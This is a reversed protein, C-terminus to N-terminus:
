ENRGSRSFTVRGRGSLRERRWFSVVAFRRSSRTFGRQCDECALFVGCYYRFSTSKSIGTEAAAARVSWYTANAPKGRLVRNILGAVEEDGYTRPRGPRLEDHLGAVRHDLFRQRWKGVTPLSWDLREAIAKNGERAAAWLVWNPARWLRTPCAARSSWPPFSPM